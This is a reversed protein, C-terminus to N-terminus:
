YSGAAVKAAAGISAPRQGTLCDLCPLASPPTLHISKDFVRFIASIQLGHVPLRPGLRLEIVSISDCYVLASPERFALGLTDSASAFSPCSSLCAQLWHKDGDHAGKCHLTTSTSCSRCYPKSEAHMLNLPPCDLRKDCTCGRPAHETKCSLSLRIFKAMLGAVPTQSPLPVDIASPRTQTLSVATRARYGHVRWVASNAIKSFSPALANHIFQLISVVLPGNLKPQTM